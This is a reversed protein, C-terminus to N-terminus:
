IGCAESNLSKYIKEDTHNWQHEEIKAQKQM